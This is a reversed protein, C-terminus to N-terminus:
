CLHLLFFNVRIMTVIIGASGFVAKVPTISSVERVLNLADIAVNLSSLANERREQRQADPAMLEFDIHCSFVDDGAPPSSSGSGQYVLPLRQLANCLYFWELFLSCSSATAPVFGRM